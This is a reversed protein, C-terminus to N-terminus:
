WDMRQIGSENFKLNLHPQGSSRHDVSSRRCDAAKLHHQILAYCKSDFQNSYEFEIRNSEFFAAATKQNSYKFWNSYESGPRQSAIGIAQILKLGDPHSQLMELGDPHSQLMELGDPHSQLMELGDSFARSCRWAM